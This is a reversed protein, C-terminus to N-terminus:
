YDIEMEWTGKYEMEFHEYTTQKDKLNETSFDKNIPMERLKYDTLTDIKTMSIAPDANFDIVQEEQVYYYSSTEPDLISESKKTYVLQIFDKDSLLYYTYTFGYEGCTMSDIALGVNPLSYRRITGWCDGAGYKNLSDMKMKSLEFSGIVPIELNDTQETDNEIEDCEDGWCERCPQDVREFNNQKESIVFINDSTFGNSYATIWRGLGSEKDTWIFKFSQKDDTGKWKADIFVTDNLKRSNSITFDYDEQQGHLLLEQKKDSNSISLLLNGADCSNYVILNGDNETLRVWNEPITMLDFPENHTEQCSILLTTIFLILGILKM